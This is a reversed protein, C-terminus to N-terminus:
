PALQSIDWGRLKLNCKGCFEGECYLYGMVCRDSTDHDAPFGSNGATGTNHHRKYLVHGIEHMTNRSFGDGQYPWNNYLGAGYFVTCARKNGGIGSALGSGRYPSTTKVSTQPSNNAFMIPSGRSSTIVTLGPSSNHDINATPPSAVSGQGTFYLCLNELMGGTGYIITDVDSWYQHYATNRRGRRVRPFGRGRARNYYIPEKVDFLYPTNFYDEFMAEINYRRTLRAPQAQVQIRAWRIAAEYEAATLATALKVEPEIELTNDMWYFEDEIFDFDINGIAGGGRTLNRNSATVLATQTAGHDESKHGAQGSQPLSADQTQFVGIAGKTRRGVIGDRPGTDFGLVWLREQMGLVVNSAAFTPNPKSILKSWLIHKKVCFRGTEFVVAHAETGDSPRASIPDIFIRWRYRDSGIFSPSFGIGMEGAANSKAKVTHDYTSVELTAMDPFGSPPLDKALNGLIALGRKGGRSSHANYGQPDNASYQHTVAANIFIKPGTSPVVVSNVVGMTVQGQESTDRLMELDVREETPDDHYSPILQFHVWADTLPSWSDDDAQVEILSILPIIGLMPNGAWYATEANFRHSPLAGSVAAGASGLQNINTYCHSNPLNINTESGVAPLTNSDVVFNRLQTQMDADVDAPNNRKKIWYALCNNYAESAISANSATITEYFHGLAQLRQKKGQVTTIDEFVADIDGLRVTIRVPPTRARLLNIVDTAIDGILDLTNSM